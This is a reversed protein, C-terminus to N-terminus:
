LWVQLAPTSDLLARPAHPPAQWTAPFLASLTAALLPHTIYYIYICLYSIYLPGGPPGARYVCKMVAAIEVAIIECCLAFIFASELGGPAARLVCLKYIDPFNLISSGAPNSSARTDAATNAQWLEAAVSPLHQQAHM